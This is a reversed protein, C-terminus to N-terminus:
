EQDEEQSEAIVENALHAPLQQYHSFEMEFIGRGGTMSRLDTTYRQM